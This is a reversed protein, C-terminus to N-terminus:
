LILFFGVSHRFNQTDNSVLLPKELPSTSCLSIILLAKKERLYKFNKPVTWYQEQLHCSNFM